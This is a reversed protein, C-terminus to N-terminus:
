VNVHNGFCDFVNYVKKINVIGQGNAEDLSSVALFVLQFPLSLVTSGRM